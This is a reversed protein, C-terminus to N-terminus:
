RQKSSSKANNKKKTNAVEKGLDTLKKKGKLKDETM